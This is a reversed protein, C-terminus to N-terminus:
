REVFIVIVLFDFRKDIKGKRSEVRIYFLRLGLYCTVIIFKVKVDLVELIWFGRFRSFVM